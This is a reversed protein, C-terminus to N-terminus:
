RIQDCHLDCKRYRKEGYLLQSNDVVELLMYESRCHLFPYYLPKTLLAEPLDKLFEKILGAVVHVSTDPQLSM